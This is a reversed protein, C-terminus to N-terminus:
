TEQKKREWGDVAVVVVVSLKRFRRGRKQFASGSLLIVFISSPYHKLVRCQRRFTITTGDVRINQKGALHSVKPTFLVSKSVYVFNLFSTPRHRRRADGVPVVRSSRKVPPKGRAKRRENTNECANM